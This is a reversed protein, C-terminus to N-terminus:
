VESNAPLVALLKGIQVFRVPQYEASTKRIWDWFESIKIRCFQGNLVGMM